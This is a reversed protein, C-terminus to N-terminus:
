YLMKIRGWTTEEAPTGGPGGAMVSSIYWGPYTVSSDSGFKVAIQVTAGMFQSLDFCDKVFGVPDHGTFGPQTDVCWAYYNVSDSLEDDPYGGMPDIVVYAGDVVVEVNGGDYSTEIDYFHCLELLYCNETVTIAPGLIAREGSDNPYEGTLVTGLVDGVPDGYCDTGPVGTATGFEWVPLGSTDCMELSYSGDWTWCVNTLDDCAVRNQNLTGDDVPDKALLPTGLLGFLCIMLLVKRM